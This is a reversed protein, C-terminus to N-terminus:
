YVSQYIAEIQARDMDRPNCRILRRIGTDVEEAMEPLASPPVGLRSLQTELGSGAILRDIHDIFAEAAATPSAFTRQPLVAPALEAYLGAASELNFRMVATMVLANAHGHPIHFRAGLPYALAHIAAVSANIFALGALTAGQLMAERAALNGGDALVAPLNAGLLTLAQVAFADSVPNKGTASTYAEIAHVMADLGTAATVHPPLAITLEADLLAIDPLLQPAFVAQKRGADDTIVSVWTVESGTGATTPVQILPVRQGRARDTGIMDALPQDGGIMLAVLKATDLSSGGGLGVVGDAGWHRAHEAARQIVAVPPDAAVGDFVESLLGARSLAAEARDALGTAAIGADCVIFVREAGLGRMLEGIDELGGRRAIIRPVCRISFDTRAHIGM